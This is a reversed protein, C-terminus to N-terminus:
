KLLSLKKVVKQNATEVMLYYIGAPEKSMDIQINAGFFQINQIPKGMVNYILLNAGNVNPEAIEITILNSAPNPKIEVEPENSIQTLNTTGDVMMNTTFGNLGGRINGVMIEFFGDNNIDAMAAATITGVAINGYNSTVLNFSGDLNNEIDDYLHIAGSESGLVLKFDTGFDLFFPATGGITGLDIDGLKNNNPSENPNPHFVPNDPTGQNPFYNLNGQKEGIVLDPLNDRNLDVIQPMSSLGVNIGQWNEQIGNFLIPNGQGGENEAFFLRGQFEGVLLDLDGDSDLDGFTPAFAFANLNFQQFDLWNDDTLEYQPSAITGTNEFLFLRSDKAGAPKYFNFNGVVLDLLGDANVDAFAPFANTGMDIMGEVLFDSQQFEFVPAETTGTNQYFWGVKKNEVVGIGNPCVILDKVDDNNLDLFFPAPFFALNVSVDYIPYKDDQEVMFAIDPTGGNTMGVLFPNAFDGILIELLGDDNEDFTLLTSGPHERDDSSDNVFGDACMNIDDSLTISSSVASEAFRGWCDDALEYLLEELPLGNEVALNKYFHVQGGVFNLIDLDGDGDIDNIDPYDDAIVVIQTLLQNDLPYTLVEAPFDNDFEVRDFALQNNQYKGLYVKVGDIGEDASHAFLDQIGDNNFDRLAAWNQVKPFNKAYKPAYVYHTENAAGENLFTLHVKGARDYLYLDKKNDNNLDVASYQPANLGGALPNPLIEGNVQFPINYPQFTQASLFSFSNVFLVLLLLQLGQKM